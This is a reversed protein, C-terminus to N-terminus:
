DRLTLHTPQEKLHAIAYAFSVAGSLVSFYVYRLDCAIGILVYTLAFVIGSIALGIIAFTRLDFRRCCLVISGISAILYLAAANIPTNVFLRSYTSLIPNFRSEALQLNLERIVTAPESHVGIWTPLCQSHDRLGMQWSFLAGRHKLYSFPEATIATLWQKKLDTLNVDSLYQYVLGPNSLYDFRASTYHKLIEAKLAPVDVGLDGFLHLPLAQNQYVIGSIDFIMLIRVGNNFTLSLNQVAYFDVVGAVLESIVICIIFQAIFPIFIKHFLTRLRNTKQDFTVRIDQWRTSLITSGILAVLLGQPRILILLSFSVSALLWISKRIIPKYVSSNYILASAFSLLALNAFLTDKWIIGNYILVVPHACTLLFLLNGLMSTRELSFILLYLSAYFLLTNATMYLGTNTAIADFRGLLFSM